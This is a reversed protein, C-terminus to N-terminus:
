FAIIIEKGKSFKIEENAATVHSVNKKRSHTTEVKGCGPDRDIIVM